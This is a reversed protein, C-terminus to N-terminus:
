GLGRRVARGIAAGVDEASAGRPLPAPGADVHARGAHSRPWGADAALARELERVAAARVREGDLAGFGRVAVEGIELRVVSV